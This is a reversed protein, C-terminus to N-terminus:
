IKIDMRNIDKKLRIFTKIKQMSPNGTLHVPPRPKNKSNRTRSPQGGGAPPVDGGSTKTRESYEIEETGGMNQLCERYAVQPPTRHSVLLKARIFVSM